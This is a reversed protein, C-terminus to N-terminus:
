AALAPTPIRGLNRPTYGLDRAARACASMIAETSPRHDGALAVEAGTEVVGIEAAHQLFGATYAYCVLDSMDAALGRAGSTGFRVGSQSMLDDIRM